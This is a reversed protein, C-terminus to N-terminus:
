LNKKCWERNKGWRVLKMNVVLIVFFM